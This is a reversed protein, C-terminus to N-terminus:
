PDTELCKAKRASTRLFSGSCIYLSYVKSHSPCLSSGWLRSLSVVAHQGHLGGLPCSLGSVPARGPARSPRASGSSSGGACLVRPSCMQGETLFCLVSKTVPVHFGLVSARVHSFRTDCSSLFRRDCDTTCHLHLYYDNPMM